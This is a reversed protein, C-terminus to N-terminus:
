SVVVFAGRCATRAFRAPRTNLRMPRRFDTQPPPIIAYKVPSPQPNERLPTTQFHRCNASESSGM